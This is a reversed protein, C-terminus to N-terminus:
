AKVEGRLPDLGTIANLLLAKDRANAEREEARLRGAPALCALGALAVMAWRLETRLTCMTREGSPGLNTIARWGARGPERLAPPGRGIAGPRFCAWKKGM